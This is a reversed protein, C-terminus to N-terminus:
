NIKEGTKNIFFWQNSQWLNHEDQQITKCELSVKAKGENFPFACAFQPEIVIKGKADAFGIKGNKLIRFLGDSLYDPGNDFWFVQFLKKGHNDIAICEQSKTLVVAFYILTDTYCYLYKGPAVITDGSINVYGTRIGPENPSSQSIKILYNEKPKANCGFLIVTISFLLIAVFAHKSSNM